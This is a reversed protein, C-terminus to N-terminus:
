KPSIGLTIRGLRSIRTMKWAPTWVVEVSVSTVEDISSLVKVIDAPLTDVCTCSAETFTIVVHCHGSEDLCIEYVLGLNYIDLEIEPDYITQLKDVLQESIALALDNVKIDERM